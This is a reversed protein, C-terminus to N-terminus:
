RAAAHDLDASRARAAVASPTSFAFRSSHAALHEIARRYASLMAANGSFRRECHTLIVVVGRSRAVTEACDIWLQAIEDRSYGLFRLSGDRPLSLPIEVIGELLCPRASACGNNPVPFLGGSTPVSSDYEYRGALDRLLSRTRLLSPARYGIADYREAFARAGDLRARREAADAFPTRNSHDYGHVGIEHGRSRVDTLAVHDLPWGCPVVYNASRAGVSEEIPLFLSRLNALGEASDIDHTLLVPAPAGAFANSLGALDGLFDASLDLPWAPFAAWRDVRRRERRGQVSAVSARLWGPLRQYSFPLRASAPARDTFAARERLERVEAPEPPAVPPSPDWADASRRVADHWGARQLVDSPLNFRLGESWAIGPMAAASRVRVPVLPSVM